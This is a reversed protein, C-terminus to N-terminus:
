DLLLFSFLFPQNSHHSQPKITITAVTLCGSNSDRLQRKKKEEGKERLLNFKLAVEIYNYTYTAVYTCAHWSEVCAGSIYRRLSCAHMCVVKGSSYLHLVVRGVYTHVYTCALVQIGILIYM